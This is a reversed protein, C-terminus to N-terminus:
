LEAEGGVMDDPFALGETTSGIGDGEGIGGGGLWALVVGPDVTWGLHQAAVTALVPMAAAVYMAGLMTALSALLLFAADAVICKAVRMAGFAKGLAPVVGTAIKMLDFGGKKAGSYRTVVLPYGSVVRLAGFAIATVLRAALSLLLMPLAQFGLGQAASGAAEALPKLWADLVSTVRDFVRECVEDWTDNRGGDGFGGPGSAADDRPAAPILQNYPSRAATVAATALAGASRAEPLLHLGLWLGLLLLVAMGCIAECATLFGLSPRLWRGNKGGRRREAAEASRLLEPDFPKAVMAANGAQRGTTSSAVSVRAPAIGRRAPPKASSQRKESGALSAALNSLEAASSEPGAPEGDDGLVSGPADGAADKERATGGSPVRDGAVLAM